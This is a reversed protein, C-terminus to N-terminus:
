INKESRNKKARGKLENLLDKIKERRRAEIGKRHFFGIFYGMVVALILETM